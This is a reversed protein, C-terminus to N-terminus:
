APAKWVAALLEADVEAPDMDYDNRLQAIDRHPLYIRLLTVLVDGLTGRGYDVRDDFEEDRLVTVLLQRATEYRLFRMIHLSRDVDPNDLMNRIVPNATNLYLRLAQTVSAGLDSSSIKLYWLGAGGGPLGQSPFDAATTPFRGGAGELIIRHTHQWLLSGARRPALQEAADDPELLVVRAKINVAGGLDAGPLLATLTNSGEVVEIVTGDSRLNTRESQWGLAAGIRAGDTLGCDKALGELDIELNWEVTIDTLYHWDPVWMDTSARNSSRIEPWDSRIRSPDPQLYGLSIPSSM